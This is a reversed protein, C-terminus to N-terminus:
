KENVTITPIAFLVDRLMTEYDKASKAGDEEEAWSAHIFYKVYLANEPAPSKQVPNKVGRLRMYSNFEDEGFEVIKSSDTIIGMGLNSGKPKEDPALAQLGWRGIIGAAKDQILVTEDHKVIGTVFEPATQNDLPELWLEICAWRQGAFISIRATLNFKREGVIWNKYKLDIISRYTGDAIISYDRDAKAVPEIKNNIWIGFSGMGLSKGVKLIDMGCPTEQHYNVGPTAYHTLGLCPKRKGFIDIANREDWYLRYAILDSEWGPGEFGKIYMGTHTRKTPNNKDRTDKLSYKKTEGANLHVIVVAEDIRKDNDLDDSQIPLVEDECTLMLYKEMDANWPIVVPAEKLTKNSPNHVTITIAFCNIVLLLLICITSLLVNKNM